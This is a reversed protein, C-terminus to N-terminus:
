ELASLWNFLISAVMARTADSQPAFDNGPIDQFLGQATLATVYDRAWASVDDFDPWEHDDLVDEPTNDEGQDRHIFAALEQKSVPNNGRFTRVGDEVYGLAVGADYAWVIYNIGWHDEAIDTFPNELDAVDPSGALRYLIAVIEARRLPQTPAFTGDPMGRMVDNDYVYMVANYFWNGPLVDEFTLAMAVDSLRSPAGWMMGPIPTVPVDKYPVAQIRIFVDGDRPQPIELDDLNFRMVVNREDSQGTMDQGPSEVLATGISGAAPNADTAAEAAELTPYAYIRYNAWAVNMWRLENGAIFPFVPVAASHTPGRFSFTPDDYM